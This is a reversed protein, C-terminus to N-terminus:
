ESSVQKGNAQQRCSEWSRVVVGPFQMAWAIKEPSSYPSDLIKQARQLCAEYEETTAEEGTLRNILTVKQREKSRIVERSWGTARAERIWLCLSDKM